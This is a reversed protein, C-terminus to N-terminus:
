QEPAVGFPRGLSLDRIGTIGAIHFNWLQILAQNCLILFLLERDVVQWLAIGDQLRGTLNGQEASTGLFIHLHNVIVEFFM